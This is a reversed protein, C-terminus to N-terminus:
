SDTSTGSDKSSKTEGPDETTATLSASAEHLWNECHKALADARRWLTMAEEIGVQGGELRSVIKVLEDKAAEYGLDPQM